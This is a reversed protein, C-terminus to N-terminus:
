GSVPIPFLVNKMTHNGNKMSDNGTKLIFFAMTAALGSVM